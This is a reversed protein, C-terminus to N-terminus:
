ITSCRKDKLRLAVFRVLTAKSTRQAAKGDNLNPGTTRVTDDNARFVHRYSELRAERLMDVILAVGFSQRITDDRVRDLRTVGVTWQHMKTEVASHSGQIEKTM